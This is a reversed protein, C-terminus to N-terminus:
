PTAIRGYTSALSSGRSAPKRPIFYRAASLSVQSSQSVGIRRERSAILRNDFM